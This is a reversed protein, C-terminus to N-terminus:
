QPVGESRAHGFLRQVLEGTTAAPVLVM